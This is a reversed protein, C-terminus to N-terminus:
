WCPLHSTSALSLASFTGQPGIRDVPSSMSSSLRMVLSIITVTSWGSRPENLVTPQGSFSDSEGTSTSRDGSRPSCLSSIKPRSRPRGSSSSTERLAFPTIQPHSIVACLHAGHEVRHPGVPTRCQRGDLAAQQAVRVADGGRRLVQGGRRVLRDGAGH